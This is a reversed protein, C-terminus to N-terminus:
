SDTTKFSFGKTRGYTELDAACRRAFEFITWSIESFDQLTLELTQGVEFVRERSAVKIGLLTDKQATYPLILDTENDNDVIVAKLHRWKLTLAGTPGLDPESVQGMRHVFCNRAANISMVEAVYDTPLSFGYRNQLFELKQPLTRRHFQAQRRVITDNWTEQKVRRGGSPDAISWMALVLQVEELTSAIIEAVDRFGNTLVWSRWQTQAEAVSWPNQDDFGHVFAVDPLEYAEPTIRSAARTGIAVLYTANKLLRQVRGAIGVLNIQLSVTAGTRPGVSEAV